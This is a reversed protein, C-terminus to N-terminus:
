NGGNSENGWWAPRGLAQDMKGKRPKLRGTLTKNQVAETLMRSIDPFEVARSSRCKGFEVAAAWTVCVFYCTGLLKFICYRYM